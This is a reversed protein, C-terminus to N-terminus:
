WADPASWVSNDATIHLMAQISDDAIPNLEEKAHWLAIPKSTDANHIKVMSSGFDGGGMVWKVAHTGENLKIRYVTNKTTDDGVTGIAKDDIYLTHVGATPSGGAHWIKLNTPRPLDFRGRLVISINRVGEGLLVDRDEFVARYKELAAHEFLKGHEYHVALPVPLKKVYVRGVLGPKADAPVCVSDDNQSIVALIREREMARLKQIEESVKAQIAEIEAKQEPTLNLSQYLAVAQEVRGDQNQVADAALTSGAVTVVFLWGFAKQTTNM